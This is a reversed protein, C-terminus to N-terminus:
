FNPDRYAYPKDSPHFVHSYRKNKGVERFAGDTRKNIEKVEGNLDSRYNYCNGEYGNVDWNMERIIFRTESIVKIVEYAYCDSGSPM